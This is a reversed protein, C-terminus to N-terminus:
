WHSYVRKDIFKNERHREPNQSHRQPQRGELDIWIPSMILKVAFSDRRIM